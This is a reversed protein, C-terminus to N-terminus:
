KLKDELYKLQATSFKDRNDDLLQSDKEEIIQRMLFDVETEENKKSQKVSVFGQMLEDFEKCIFMDLKKFNEKPYKERIAERSTKLAEDLSYATCMWLIQKSDNQKPVLVLAYVKPKMVKSRLTELLKQYKFM